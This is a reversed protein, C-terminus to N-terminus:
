KGQEMEHIKHILEQNEAQLAQIKAKNDARESKVLYGFWQFLVVGLVLVFLLACGPDNGFSDDEVRM